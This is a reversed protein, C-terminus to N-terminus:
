LNIQLVLPWAKGTVIKGLYSMNAQLIKKEWFDSPWKFNFKMHLISSKIPGYQGHWMNLVDEM